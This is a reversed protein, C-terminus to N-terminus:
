SSANHIFISILISISMVGIVFLKLIVKEGKIKTDKKNKRKKIKQDARKLNSFSHFSSFSIDLVFIFVFSPAEIMRGKQVM